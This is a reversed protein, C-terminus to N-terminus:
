LLLTPTNLSRTILLCLNELTEFIKIALVVRIESYDFRSHTCTVLLIFNCFLEYIEEIGEVPVKVEIESPITAQSDVPEVKEPTM